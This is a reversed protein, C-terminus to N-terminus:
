EASRQASKKEFEFRVPKLVSFGHRTLDAPSVFRETDADSKFSQIKKKCGSFAFQGNGGRLIKRGQALLARAPESAM